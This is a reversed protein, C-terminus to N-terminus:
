EANVRSLKEYYSEVLPSFEPSVPEDRAAEIASRDAPSLEVDGFVEERYEADEANDVRNDGHLGLGNKDSNKKSPSDSESSSDSPAQAQAWQERGQKLMTQSAENLAETAEAQLSAQEEPSLKPNMSEAMRVAARGLERAAEPSDALVDSQLEATERAIAQQEEPSGENESQQAQRDRLGKAKEYKRALEELSKAKEAESKQKSSPKKGSRDGPEKESDGKASPESAGEPKESEPSDNKEGPESPNDSEGEAETEGPEGSEESEGQESPAPDEGTPNEGPSDNSEGSESSEGEENSADSEGAQEEAGPESSAGENEAASAVKEREGELRQIALELHKIATRQFPTARGDKIAALAQRMAKVASEVQFGSPANVGQVSVILSNTEVAIADQEAYASAPDGAHDTLARQRALLSRLQALLDDLFDASAPERGTEAAIDSLMEELREQAKSAEDFNNDELAQTAKEALDQMKEIKREEEASENQREGEAQDRMSAELAAEERSEAMEQAMERVAREIARQEAEAIAPDGDGQKLKESRHHNESQRKQLNEARAARNLEKQRVRLREFIQRLVDQVEDQGELAERMNELAVGSNPASIAGDLATIIRSLDGRDLKQLTLLTDEIVGIDERTAGLEGLEVFIPRLDSLFQNTGDKVEIQTNRVRNLESDSQGFSQGSGLLLLAVFVLPYLYKQKM